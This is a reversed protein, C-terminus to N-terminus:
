LETTFLIFPALFINIIRSFFVFFKNPGSAQSVLGDRSYKERIFVFLSNERELLWSFLLGHKKCLVNDQKTCFSFRFALAILSFLVIEYDNFSLFKDWESVLLRRLNEKMSLAGQLDLCIIQLSAWPLLFNMLLIRQPFAIGHVNIRCALCSNWASIVITLICSQSPILSHNPTEILWKIDMWAQAFCGM